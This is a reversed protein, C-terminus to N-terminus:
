NAALVDLFQGQGSPSAWEDASETATNEGWENFSIVLQWPEGSANMDLVAQYFADLDRPLRQPEPGTLDFEPSIAFSYGTQRDARTSPAYQHWSNPQSTCTRYGPFVKLVVYFDRSATNAQIWRDAMPCGDAGRAYAFIVPKGNVKLYSPDAAYNAKIYDLDAGIQEATPDSYGEAEHYIAWKIPSHTANTEALMAPFRADTSHGQGWWSYIGAEFKGYELSALHSRRISQSNSSYYGLTPHYKTFPNIGNQNWAEPFWPYYFAARIPFTPQPTPTAVAATGTLASRNGAADSARVAYSYDTGAVVATDTYGPTSTTTLLVDNRFVEYGTVGIDDLSPSWTLEVSTPTTANASLNGPVSPPQTDPPVETTIAVANSLGSTNGAADFASVTYTYAAPAAVTTDSFASSTSTSLFSGNRFVQYGIVATNDSSADWTLDVRGAAGTAILNAPTSPPQSDPPRLVTPDRQPDSGGSGSPVLNTGPLATDAWFTFALSTSGSRVVVRQTGASLRPVTLSTAIEGNRRARVVRAPLGAFGVRVRSSRSFGSGAIEITRGAVGPAPTWRVRAGQQSAVEGQEGARPATSVRYFNVVKKRRATTVIALRGRRGRPIVLSTEFSGNRVPRLRTTAGHAPQVSVRSGPTFGKGSLAVRSGAPGAAPRLTVSTQAVAQPAAFALVTLCACALVGIRPARNVFEKENGDEQRVRRVGTM